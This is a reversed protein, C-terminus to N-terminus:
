YYKDIMSQFVSEFRDLSQYVDSVRERMEPLNVAARLNPATKYIAAHEVEWFLGILMPTVQYEAALTDDSRSLGHFKHSLFLDGERAPDATWDPYLARLRDAIAQLRRNPFALARFGALDKLEKLTYNEKRALDFARGEQRRKLANLASDFSKIRSRVLLKEHKQASESFGLLAYRRETELRNAVREIDPLISLYEERLHDEISRGTM